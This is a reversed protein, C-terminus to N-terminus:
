LELEELLRESLEEKLNLDHKDHIDLIVEFLALFVKFEQISVLKRILKDEENKLSSEWKSSTPPTGVPSSPPAQIGSLNSKELFDLSNVQGTESKYKMDIEDMSQHILVVLARHEIGSANVMM